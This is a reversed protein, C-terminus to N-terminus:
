GGQAERVGWGGRGGSRRRVDAGCAGVGDCARAHVRCVEARAPVRSEHMSIHVMRAERCINTRVRVNVDIHKVRVWVRVRCVHMSVDIHMGLAVRLADSPSSAGQISQTYIIYYIFISM